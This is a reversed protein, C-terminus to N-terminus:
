PGRRGRLDSKIEAFRSRNRAKQEDSLFAPEVMPPKRPARRPPRKPKEPEPPRWGCVEGEPGELNQCAGEDDPSYHGDCGNCIM